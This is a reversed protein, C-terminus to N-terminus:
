SLTLRLRSSGM